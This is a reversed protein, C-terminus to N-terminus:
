EEEKDEGTTLVVNIKINEDEESDFTWNFYFNGSELQCLDQETLNVKINYYKMKIKRIKDEKILAKERKETNM